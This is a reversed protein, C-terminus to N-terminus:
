VSNDLWASISFELIIRLGQSNSGTECIMLVEGTIVCHFPVKNLVVTFVLSLFLRNFLLLSTVFLHKLLPDLPRTLPPRSVHFRHLRRQRGDKKHGIKVPGPPPWPGRPGGGSGSSHKSFHNSMLKSAVPVTKSFKVVGFKRQTPIM